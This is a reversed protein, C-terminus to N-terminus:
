GIVQQLRILTPVRLVVGEQFDRVSDKIVDPNMVAFIWWYAPTGYLDYSLTTARYTHRTSLKIWTDTLDLPIPRPVYYSLAWSTQPTSYYLSKKSYKVTM